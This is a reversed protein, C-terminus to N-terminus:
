HMTKLLRKKKGKSWSIHIFLFLPHTKFCCAAVKVVLHFSTMVRWAMCGTFWLQGEGTWRRPSKPHLCIYCNFHELFTVSKSGTWLKGQASTDVLVRSLNQTSDEGKPSQVATLIGGPSTSYEYWQAKWSATSCNGSSKGLHPPLGLNTPHWGCNFNKAEEDWVMSNFLSFQIFFVKHNVPPVCTHRPHIAKVGVCIIPGVQHTGPENLGPTHHLTSPSGPAQPPVPTASQHGTGPEWPAASESPRWSSQPKEKGTRFALKDIEGKQKPGQLRLDWAWKLHPSPYTSPMSLNSIATPPQSERYTNGLPKPEGWARWSRWQKAKQLVQM